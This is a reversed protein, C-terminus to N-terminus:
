RRILFNLNVELGGIEDQFLLTLIGYDSHDACRVTGPKVKDNNWTPPYYLSRFTTFSKISLNDLHKCRNVFFEQGEEGIDLSIALVRLLNKILPKSENELAELAPGFGTSAEPYIRETGCFDYSERIEFASDALLRILFGFSIM